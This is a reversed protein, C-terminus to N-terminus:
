DDRRCYCPLYGSGCNICFFAHIASFLAERETSDKLRAIDHIIKAVATVDIRKATDDGLYERVREAFDDDGFETALDIGLHNDNSM